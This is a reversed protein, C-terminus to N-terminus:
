ISDSQNLEQSIDQFFDHNLVRSIRLLLEIDINDRHFIDYINRRDCCLQKSFWTVSQTKPLHEFEDQIMKGIHM